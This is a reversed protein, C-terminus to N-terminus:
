EIGRGVKTHIISSIPRQTAALLLCAHMACGQHPDESDCTTNIPAMCAMQNLTVVHHVHVWFLFSDGLVGAFFARLMGCPQCALGPRVLDSCLGQVCRMLARKCTVLAFCWCSEGRLGFRRLYAELGLKKAVKSGWSCRSILQDHTAAVEAVLAEAQDPAQSICWLLGHVCNPVRALLHLFGSQWGRIPRSGTRHPVHVHFWAQLPGYCRCATVLSPIHPLLHCAYVTLDHMLM